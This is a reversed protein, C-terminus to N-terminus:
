KRVKQEVVRDKNWSFMLILLFAYTLFDEDHKEVWWFFCSWFDLLFYMKSGMAEIWNKKRPRNSDLTVMHCWGLCDVLHLSKKRSFWWLNFKEDLYIEELFGNWDWWFIIKLAPRAKATPDDDNTPIGENGTNRVTAYIWPNGIAVAGTAFRGRSWLAQHITLNTDM